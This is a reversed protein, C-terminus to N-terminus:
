GGGSHEDEGRLGEGEWSELELGGRGSWRWWWGSKKEDPGIVAVVVVVVVAM